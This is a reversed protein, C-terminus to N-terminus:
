WLSEGGQGAGLLNESRVAMKTRRLAANWIEALPDAAIRSLQRAHSGVLFLSGNLGPEPKMKEGLNNLVFPM